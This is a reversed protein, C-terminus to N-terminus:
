HPNGVLANELCESINGLLDLSLYMEGKEDLLGGLTMMAVPRMARTSSQILRCKWEFDFCTCWTATGSVGKFM